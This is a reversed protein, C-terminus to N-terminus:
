PPTAAHARRRTTRRPKTTADVTRSARVRALLAEAPQDNPNQPVLKGSFARKLISQRLAEARNFNANIESSLADAAELRADLIHVIEAQEAPSCIPFSLPEVNKNNIQPVNSGDCITSLDVGLMWFWSFRQLVTTTQNVLGMTNLDFCSPQQLRRKKNTLIAGGRKPFVTTEAPFVTLSYTRVEEISLNLSAHRLNTENGEVNMDAIRFFPTDTGRCSDIGRPTSGSVIDLVAVLKVALWDDPLKPVSLVAFLPQTTSFKPRKPKAPKKRKKGEKRWEFIATEWNGLAKEYASEREKEIRALLADPAEVKDANEVRWEATLRGEFASRLLSRRYLVIARQADRLGEVGRDIEDFLLEIREVIRRQEEPPPVLVEFAGIQAFSVRPRDGENLHSAFNVFDRAHLRYRLFGPDILENGEFVMFEASALGDFGPQAVKNLYPRLRGYLVDDKYFRSASSKMERSSVFGVIRTTNPEVHDMGIFPLEPFDAPPVREGRPQVFDSLPGSTWGSPLETM